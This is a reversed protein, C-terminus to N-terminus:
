GSMTLWGLSQTKEAPSWVDCAMRVSGKGLKQYVSDVFLIFNFFFELPIHSLFVHFFTQKKKPFLVWLNRSEAFPILM